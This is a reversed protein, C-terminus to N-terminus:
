AVLANVTFGNGEVIVPVNFTHTPKVVVTPLVGPPPVQLLASGATAVILEAEPMTVPINVPVAM